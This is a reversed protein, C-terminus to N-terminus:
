FAQIVSVHDNMFKTSEEDPRMDVNRHFQAQQLKRENAQSDSAARTDVDPQSGVFGRRVLDPNEVTWKAM